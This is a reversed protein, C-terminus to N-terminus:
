DVSFGITGRVGWSKDFPAGLPTDIPLLMGLRAFLPDHYLRFYPEFAGQYADDDGTVRRPNAAIGVGQYRLGAAIDHGIRVDVSHQFAVYHESGSSFSITWVPEFDAALEFLSVHGEVGIGMAFPVAKVALEEADWFGRAASVAELDNTVLPPGFAGHLHLWVGDSAAIVHRVGVLPNGLAGFTTPLRLEVLTHDLVPIRTTLELVGMPVNNGGSSGLALAAAELSVGGRLSNPLGKTSVGERHQRPTRDEPPPPGWAVPPPYYWGPPAGPPPM